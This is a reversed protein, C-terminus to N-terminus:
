VLNILLEHLVFMKVRNKWVKYYCSYSLMYFEIKYWKLMDSVSIFGMCMFLPIPQQYCM